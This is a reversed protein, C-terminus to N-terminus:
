QVTIATPYLPRVVPAGGAEFAGLDFASGQPRASGAADISISRGYLSLFTAYVASTAGRDVAPSNTPITFVRSAPSQLLPDSSVCAACKGAFAASSYTSGGWVIKIGGSRFFLNNDIVASGPSELNIESGGSSTRGAIINNYIRLTAGSPAANVGGDSDWITNNVIWLNKFGRASIAGSNYIDGPGSANHTNYIVNGIVYGDSSGSDGDDSGVFIGMGCDHLVNFIFWVNHPNYQAGMCQGPSSSSASINYVENQSFIVDTAHKVWGGSQKLGYALNRGYYVHHIKGMGRNHQAEVQMADGECAHLKSDVVWLNNVSGNVTICHFDRDGTAGVVIGLDHIDVGRLVINNATASGSYDWNGIGIGGGGSTTGIFESQRVAVHHAGEAIQLAAPSFKLNEIIVYSASNTGWSSTITPRNAYDQGSIFIPSAATGTWTFEHSVAYTGHVEM